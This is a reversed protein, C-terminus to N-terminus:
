EKQQKRWAEKAKKKKADVVEKLTAQRVMAELGKPLHPRSKYRV